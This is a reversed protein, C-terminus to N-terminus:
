GVGGRLEHHTLDDGRRRMASARAMVAWRPAPGVLARVQEVAENLSGAGNWAAAFDADALTSVLGHMPRDGIPAVPEGPRTTAGHTRLLDLAPL